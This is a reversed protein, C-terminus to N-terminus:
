ATSSVGPGRSARSPDDGSGWARTFARRFSPPSAVPRYPVECPPGQAFDFWLTPGAAEVLVISSSLTGAEEGHGCLYPRDLIGDHRRCFGRIRAMMDAAPSEESGSWPFREDSDERFHDFGTRNSLFFHGRDHALWRDEEALTHVYALIGGPGLVLLVFPNYREPSHDALRNRTESLSGVEGLLHRVLGGRSPARELPNAAPQNTLAVILGSENLGFWTGGARPDRPALYSITGTGEFRPPDGQRDYFEDRNAAVILPRPRDPDVRGAM